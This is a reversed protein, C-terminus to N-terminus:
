YGVGTKVLARERESAGGTKELTECAQAIDDALVESDGRELGDLAATVIAEPSSKPADTWSAMDTDVFGMHLGLVQTGQEALALRLGDTASWAAAKSM